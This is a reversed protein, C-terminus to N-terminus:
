EGVKGISHLWESSELKEAFTEVTTLFDDDSMNPDANSKCLVYCKGCSDYGDSYPSKKFNIVDVKLSVEGIARLDGCWCKAHIKIDESIYDEFSVKSGKKSLCDRFYYACIANKVHEEIQDFHETLTIQM